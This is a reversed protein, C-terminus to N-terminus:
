GARRAQYVTDEALLRKLLEEKPPLAALIGDLDGTAVAEPVELGADQYASPLLELVADLAERAVHLYLHLADLLQEPTGFGYEMFARRPMEETAPFSGGFRQIRVEPAYPSDALREVEPM